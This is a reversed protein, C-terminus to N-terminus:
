QQVKLVLLNLNGERNLAIKRSKVCNFTAVYLISVVTGTPKHSVSDESTPNEVMQAVDIQGASAISTETVASTHQRM